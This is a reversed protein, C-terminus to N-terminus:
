ELYLQDCKKTVYNRKELGFYVKNDMDRKCAFEVHTPLGPDYGSDQLVHPEWLCNPCQAWSDGSGRSGRTVLDPVM